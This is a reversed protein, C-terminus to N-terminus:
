LWGFGKAMLAALGLAVSILAGFLTRFDSRQNHRIEKIDAKIDAIDRQIYEVSSELKAVRAELGNGGDNGGPKRPMDNSLLHVNSM